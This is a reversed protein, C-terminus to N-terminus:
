LTACPVIIFDRIIWMFSAVGARTGWETGIEWDLLYHNTIDFTVYKLSAKMFLEPDYAV